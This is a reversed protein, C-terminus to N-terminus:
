LDGGESPHPVAGEPPFAEHWPPLEKAYLGTGVLTYILLTAVVAVAQDSRLAAGLFALVVSSLLNGGLTLALFVRYPMRSLGSAYSILDFNISPLLWTLFVLMPTVRAATWRIERVSHLDFILQIVHRGQRRAIFFNLSAAVVIAVISFISGSWLGLIFGAAVTVLFEPFFPSLTSVGFLIALLPISLALHASLASHISDLAAQGQRNSAVLMLLGLLAFTVLLKTVIPHYVYVLYRRWLV